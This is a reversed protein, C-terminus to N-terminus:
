AIVTLLIFNDRGRGLYFFLEKGSWSGYLATVVLIGTAGSLCFNIFM